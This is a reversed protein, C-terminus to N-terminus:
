RGMGSLADAITRLLGDPAVAIDEDEATLRREALRDCAGSPGSPNLSTPTQANDHATRTAPQGKQRM